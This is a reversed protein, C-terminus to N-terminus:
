EEAVEPTTDTMSACFIKSPTVIVHKTRRVMSSLGM